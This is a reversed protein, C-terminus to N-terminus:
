RFNEGISRRSSGANMVLLGGLTGPIGVIHEIGSLGAHISARALKWAVILAGAVIDHGTVEVKLFAHGLRIVVGWYGDDAFLLNSGRGIVIHPLSNQEAFNLASLLESLDRAEIFFDAEGGIQWSTHRSLPESCRIALGSVSMEVAWRM